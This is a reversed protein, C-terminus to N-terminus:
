CVRAIKDQSNIFLVTLQDMSIIHERVLKPLETRLLSRAKQWRSRGLVSARDCLALLMQHEQDHCKCMRGGAEEMLMVEHDFHQRMLRKLRAIFFEFQIPECSVTRLWWEGIALHDADIVAHGLVHARGILPRVSRIVTQRARTSPDGGGPNMAIAM